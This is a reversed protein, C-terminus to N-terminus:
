YLGFVGSKLHSVFYKNDNNQLVRLFGEFGQKKERDANHRVSYHNRAYARM